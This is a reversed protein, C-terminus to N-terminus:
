KWFYITSIIAEHDSLSIESSQYPTQFLPLEFWYTWSQTRNPQNSRHFIYDYIVPSYKGGSFTNAANGYTAFKSSLWEDLRYFIEQVSNIMYDRVMGYEDTDPHANFDGGLIVIDATSKSVYSKMLERVQRVRYYSNNYGHVPDPDAATHTVFVDVSVNFVDIRVRGVGKRALVEGDVFAKAGDGHDTFTNFEVDSFNYRSVIALGSSHSV